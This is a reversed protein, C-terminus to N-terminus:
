SGAVAAGVVLGVCAMATLPLRLQRYWDPLTRSTADWVGQATLAAALGLLAITSLRPDGHGVVSVAALAWGVLPPAMALILTRPETGEVLVAEAARVGGLFSLIVAGYCAQLSTWTLAPGFWDMRLVPPALFPVLGLAGFLAMLRAQPREPGITRAPTM